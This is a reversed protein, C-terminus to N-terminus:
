HRFTDISSTKNDNSQDMYCSINVSIPFAQTPQKTQMQWSQQGESSVICFSFEKLCQSSSSPMSELEVGEGM